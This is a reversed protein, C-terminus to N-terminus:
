ASQVTSLRLPGLMNPQLPATAAATRYASRASTSIALHQRVQVCCEHQLSVNCPMPATLCAFIAVVIRDDHCYSPRATKSPSTTSGVLMSSQILM